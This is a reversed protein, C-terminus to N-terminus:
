KRWAPKEASGRTKGATAGVEISDFLPRPMVPPGEALVLRNVDFWNGGRYEKGPEAPPTVVAQVCGYLDFSVTTIVGKWGTVIDTAKM